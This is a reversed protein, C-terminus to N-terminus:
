VGGSYCRLRRVLGPFRRRLRHLSLRPGLPVRALVAHAPRLDPFAHGLRQLTHPFGCPLPLLLLEGREQVVNANLGQFYGEVGELTLSGWANIAHCPLLVLCVKLAPEGIQMAANVAPGVPGLRRAPGVNRLRVSLLPWERNGGQLVLDDM